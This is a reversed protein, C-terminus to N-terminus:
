CWGEPNVEDFRLKAQPSLLFPVLPLLLLIALGFSVLSQFRSKLLERFFTGLLIIGLFPIVVRPTNFTYFTLCFSLTSLILYWANKRIGLLFLWVGLVILSTSVNAEFAGRSLNIHWPSIALICAAFLAYREKRVSNYFIEKTLYYTAAVMFTGLLASPLRTAFETLGFLMVPLVALYAYLPPKFDGYSELYQLPLFSGFEDKGDVSISYANYGFAVEDWNLSLPISGLQFLRLLAAIAIIGIFIWTHIKKM